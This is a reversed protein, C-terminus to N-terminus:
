LGAAGCSTAPTTTATSSRQGTTRPPTTGCPSPGRGCDPGPPAPRRALPASRTGPSTQYPYGAPRHRPHRGPDRGAAGRRPRFL